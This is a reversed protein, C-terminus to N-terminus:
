LSSSPSAATGTLLFQPGATYQAELEQPVLLCQGACTPRLVHEVRLRNHIEVVSHHEIIHPIVENATAAALLRVWFADSDWRARVLGIDETFILDQVLSFVCGASYTDGAETLYSSCLNM